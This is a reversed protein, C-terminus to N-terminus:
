HSKAIEKETRKTPRKLPFLSHGLALFAFLGEYGPGAAVHGLRGGDDVGLADGGFGGDHGLLEEMASALHCPDGVGGEQDQSHWEDDLHVMILLEDFDLEM